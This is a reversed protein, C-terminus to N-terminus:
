IEVIHLEPVRIEVFKEIIQPVQVIHEIIRPVVIIKEM